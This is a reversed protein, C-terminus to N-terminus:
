RYSFGSGFDKTLEESLMKILYTGYDARKKGQQEEVVIREGIKWYMLVRERNVLRVANSQADNIIARIQHVFDETIKKGTSQVTKNTETKM